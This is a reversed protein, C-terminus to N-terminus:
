PRRPDLSSAFEGVARGLDLEVGVPTQLGNEFLYRIRAVNEPRGSTRFFAALGPGFEEDPPLSAWDLLAKEFTVRWYSPSVEDVTFQASAAMAEPECRSAASVQEVPLSETALVAPEVGAMLQAGGVVQEVRDTGAGEGLARAPLQEGGALLDAFALNVGVALERRLLLVDDPQGPVSAAVALYGRFQEDAGASDFPM